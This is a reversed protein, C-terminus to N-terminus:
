RRRERAATSGARSRRRTAALAAVGIGLLALDTPEPVTAGAESLFATGFAVDLGHGAYSVLSTGAGTTTNISYISTGSVGFLNVNDATALGFFSGTGIAGIATGVGTSTSLSFLTDAVPSSSSLYLKGAVFALDGSSAYGGGSGVLTAAGTTTNLKYLESGAAYLVGSSDFVLSNLSTGTNGILTALGTTKSVSFLAGFSIGYLNGSPDFAIDTLQVGANGVITVAGTAVDVRGINGNVDDIWLTPGALAGASFLAALLGSLLGLKKNM